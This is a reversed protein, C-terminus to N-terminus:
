RMKLLHPCRKLLLLKPLKSTQLMRTHTLVFGLPSFIFIFYCFYYHYFYYYYYHHYYYYYYFLHIFSHISDVIIESFCNNSGDIQSPNYHMELCNLTWREVILFIIYLHFIILVATLRGLLSHRPRNEGLDSTCHEFFGCFFELAVDRVRFVETPM